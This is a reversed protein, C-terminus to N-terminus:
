RSEPARGAGWSIQLRAAAAGPAKWKGCLLPSPPVTPGFGEPKKKVPETRNNEQSEVRAAALPLRESCPTDSGPDM